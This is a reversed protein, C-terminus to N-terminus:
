GDKNDRMVDALRDAHTVPNEQHAEPRATDLTLKLDSKGTRPVDLIGVDGVQRLFNESLKPFLDISGKIRLVGTFFLTLWSIKAAPTSAIQSVSAKRFIQGGYRNGVGCPTASDRHSPM